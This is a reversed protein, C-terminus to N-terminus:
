YDEGGDEEDYGAEEDYEGEEGEEGEEANAEAEQAELYEKFKAMDTLFKKIAEPDIEEM